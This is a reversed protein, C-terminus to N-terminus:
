RRRRILAVGGLALLALTAPEPVQPPCGPGRGYHDAWLTYDAGDTNGDDNFDGEEWTNAGPNQLYNDAWLTYDGGDTCGDLNADGLWMVRIYPESGAYEKTAMWCNFWNWDWEQTVPDRLAGGVGLAFVDPRGNGTLDDVLAADLDVHTYLGDGKGVASESNFLRSGGIVCVDFAGIM